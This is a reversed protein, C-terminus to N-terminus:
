YPIFIGFNMYGDEETVNHFNNYEKLFVEGRAYVEDTPMQDFIRNKLDTDFIQTLNTPCSLDKSIKKYITDFNNAGASVNTSDTRDIINMLDHKLQKQLDDDKVIELDSELGTLEKIILFMQHVITRNNILQNLADFKRACKIIAKELIVIKQQPKLFKSKTTLREKSTTYLPESKFLKRGARHLGTCLLNFKRALAYMILHNTKYGIVIVENLYGYDDNIIREQLLYFFNKLNCNVNVILRAGNYARLFDIKNEFSQDGFVNYDRSKIIVLSPKYQFKRVKFYMAKVDFIYNSNAKIHKLILYVDISRTPSGNLKHLISFMKEIRLLFESSDIQYTDNINFKASVYDYKNTYFVFGNAIGKVASKKSERISILNLGRPISSIYAYPLRRSSLSFNVENLDKSSPTNNYM